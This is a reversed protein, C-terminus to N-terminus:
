EACYSSADKKYINDEIETAISNAEVSTLFDSKIGSYVIM